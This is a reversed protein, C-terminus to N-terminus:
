LRPIRDDDRRLRLPQDGRQQSFTTLRCGPDPDSDSDADADVSWGSVVM